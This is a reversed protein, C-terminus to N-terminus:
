AKEIAMRIKSRVMGKAELGLQEYRVEVDISIVKKKINPNEEIIKEIFDARTNPPPASEASVEPKDNSGFKFTGATTDKAFNVDMPLPVTPGPSPAVPTHATGFSFDPLKQRRAEALDADSSPQFNFSATSPTVMPINANGFPFSPTAMPIDSNGFPFSGSVKQQDPEALNADSSPQFVSSTTSPGIGPINMHAVSFEPLRQGFKAVDSSSPFGTSGATPVAEPKSTFDFQPAPVPGFSDNKGASNTSSFDFMPPRVAPPNFAFPFNSPTGFPARTDEPSSEQGKHGENPLQLGSANSMDDGHIHAEAEPQKPPEHSAGAAFDMPDEHIPEQSDPPATDHENSPEEAEIGDMKDRQDSKQPESPVDVGQDSSEEAEVGDMNDGQDLVQEPPVDVDMSADQNQASETAPLSSPIKGADDEDGNNGDGQNGNGDDGNGDDEIQQSPIPSAIDKLGENDPIEETTPSSTVISRSARNEDGASEALKEATSKAAKEANSFARGLADIGSFIRKMDEKVSDPAPSLQSGPALAILYKALCAETTKISEITKQSSDSAEAKAETVWNSLKQYSQCWSDRDQVINSNDKVLQCIKGALDQHSKSLRDNDDSLKGKSEFLESNVKVLQSKESSLKRGFNILQDNAKVLQENKGALDQYSKSLRDNDDSSKRQSKALEGNTQALQRNENSLKRNLASLEENTKVLQYHKGAIDRHSKSLSDSIKIELDYDDSLEEKSKSLELNTRILQDNDNSLKKNSRSLHDNKQNLQDKTQALQDILTRITDEKGKLDEALKKNVNVLKGRSKSLQDRSRSLNHNRTTLDDIETELAEVTVQLEVRALDDLDSKEATTEQRNILSQITQERNTVRNRLRRANEHEVQCNFSLNITKRSLQRMLVLLIVQESRAVRFTSVELSTAPAQVPTMSHSRHGKGRNRLDDHSSAALTLYTATHLIYDPQPHTTVDSSVTYGQDFAIKLPNM